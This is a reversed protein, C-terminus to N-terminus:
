PRCRCPAFQKLLGDTSAMPEQGLGPGVLGPLELPLHFDDSARDTAHIAEDGMGILWVRPPPRTLSRMTLLAM